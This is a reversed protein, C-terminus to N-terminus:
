MTAHDECEGSRYCHRITVHVAHDECEGSCALAATGVQKMTLALYTLITRKLKSSTSFAQPTHLLPCSSPNLISLLFLFLTFPFASRTRVLAQLDYTMWADDCSMLCLRNVHTGPAARTHRVKLSNIINAGEQETLMEQEGIAASNEGMKQWAGWGGWSVGPGVIGRM